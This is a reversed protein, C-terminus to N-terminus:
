LTTSMEATCYLSATICEKAYEKGSHNIVPYQVSYVTYVTSYVLVKSNIWETYLLRCSSVGSEWDTQGEAWGQAVLFRNEIDTVRNRNWLYTCTYWIKSEVYLHDCDTEYLHKSAGLTWHFGLSMSDGSEWEMASLSSMGLWEWTVTSLIVFNLTKHVAMSVGDAEIRSAANRYQREWWRATQASITGERIRLSRM